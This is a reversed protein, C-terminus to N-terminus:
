LKRRCVFAVRALQIQCVKFIDTWLTVSWVVNICFHNEGLLGEGINFEPASRAALRTDRKVLGAESAALVASALALVLLLNM